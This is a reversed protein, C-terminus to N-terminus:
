VAKENTRNGPSGNANIERVKYVVQVQQSMEGIVRDPVKGDVRDIVEKAFPFKGKAAEKVFVRAIIDALARRKGDPSEVKERLVREILYTLSAKKPRGKPNPSVGRPWRKNVPPHKYGVKYEQIQKPLEETM